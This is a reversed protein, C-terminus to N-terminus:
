SEPSVSRRGRRAAILGVGAIGAVVMLAPGASRGLRCPRPWRRRGRDLATWRRRPDSHSVDQRRRTAGGPRPGWPARQRPLDRLGTVMDSLGAGFRGFTSIRKRRAGRLPGCGCLVVSVGFDSCGPRHGPQRLRSPVRRAVNGHDHVHAYGQHPLGIYPFATLFPTDNADVGDGLLNNPTRNPVGLVANLTPGYGEVLARTRHRDRRGRSAPRQSLRVPRWRYRRAPESDRWRGCRLRMCRGCEAQHRHQGAAHRGPDLRDAHVPPWRPRDGLEPHQARDAPNSWWTTATPRPRPTSRTM